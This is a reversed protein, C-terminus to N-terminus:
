CPRGPEADGAASVRQGTGTRRLLVSHGARGVEAYSGAVRKAVLDGVLDEVLVHQPWSQPRVGALIADLLEVDLGECDLHLLHPGHGFRDRFRDFLETIAIAPVTQSTVESSASTAWQEVHERLLSSTNGVRSTDFFLTASTRGGVPLVAAHIFTDGRRFLKWQLAYSGEADISWGRWGRRRLSWTNSLVVPQYAGIELYTGTPPLHAALLAQEGYQSTDRRLLYRANRVADRAPRPLAFVMRTLVRVPLALARTRITM